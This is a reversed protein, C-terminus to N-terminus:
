QLFFDLYNEFMTFVVVLVVKVDHNNKQEEDSLYPELSHRIHKLAKVMQNEVTNKSIGLVDAVGQYKMGSYKALMFVEKCQAPLENVASDIKARLEKNTLEELPNAGSEAFQNPLDSIDLRILDKGSEKKLYKLSSNRVSTFLYAPLNEIKLLNKRGVWLQAFVDSVIEDVLMPSSVYRGAFEGLSGVYNDFLSKFALHDDGNAIRLVLQKWDETMKM